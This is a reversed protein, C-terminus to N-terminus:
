MTQINDEKNAKDKTLMDVKTQAKSQQIMIDEEGRLLQLIEKEQAKEKTVNLLEKNAQAFDFESKFINLESEASKM